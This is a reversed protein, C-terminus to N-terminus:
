KTEEHVRSQDAGEREFMVTNDPTVVSIREQDLSVLLHSALGIIFANLLLDCHPFRPYNIIRVDWCKESYGQFVVESDLIRVGCSFSNEKEFNCQFHSIASILESRDIHNGNYGRVSGITLYAEYTTSTKCNVKM